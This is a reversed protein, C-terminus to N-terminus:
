DVRYISWLVLPSDYHSLKRAIYLKLYEKADAVASFLGFSNLKDVFRKFGPEPFPFDAVISWFPSEEGAVDYGLFNSNATQSPIEAANYQQAYIIELSETPIVKTFHALAQQVKSLTPILGTKDTFNGFVYPDDFGEEYNKQSWPPIRYLGKYHPNESALIDGPSKLVILYGKAIM